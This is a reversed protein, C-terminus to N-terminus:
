CYRRARDEMEHLRTYYDPLEHPTRARDERQHDRGDDTVNTAPDQGGHELEVDLGM